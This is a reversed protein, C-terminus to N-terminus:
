KNYLYNKAEPNEPSRALVASYAATAESMRGQAKKARALYIYATADAPYCAVLREVQKEMEIWNQQAELAITLRLLALYNNPSIGLVHRVRSEAERWRKAALFPLVIGLKADISSPNRRIALDYERISEDYRGLLYFLWGRRLQKLDADPDTVPITDLITLAENYKGATEMQYTTQWAPNEACAASSFTASLILVLISRM